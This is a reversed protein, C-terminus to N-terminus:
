HSLETFSNKYFFFKGSEQQSSEEDNEYDEKLVVQSVKSSRESKVRSVRREPTKKGSKSSTSSKKKKTQNKTTEKSHYIKKPMICKTKGIDMQLFESLSDCSCKNTVKKKKKGSENSQHLKRIASDVCKPDLQRGCRKCIM